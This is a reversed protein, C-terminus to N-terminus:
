RGVMALHLERPRRIDPTRIWSRQGSIGRGVSDLPHQCPGLSIFRKTRERWTLLRSGRATGGPETPRGGTGGSPSWATVPGGRPPRLLAALGAAETAAPGQFNILHVGTKSLM